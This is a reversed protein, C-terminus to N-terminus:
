QREGHVDKEATHAAQVPRGVLVKFSGDDPDSYGMYIVNDRSIALSAYRLQPGSIGMPQVHWKAGDWWAHKLSGDTEYAIHPWGNADLALSTRIRVWSITGSPNSNPDVVDIRWHDGDPWAYRLTTEDQYSFNPRGQKDLVMSNGMGPITGGGRGMRGNEITTVVWPGNLGGTAMRFAGERFASYSVYTRGQSDVRVCNWKGTERDYDLTRALWVGDKLVAHRVHLYLENAADRYQYWTVHPADDPGIAIGCSFEREGSRPAIEQSHWKSGDFSAYKLTQLPFYCLHPREHSDLALNVFGDDKDVILSFWKGTAASRFGYKVAGNDPSVYGAHVNGESDVALANFTGSADVTETTWTWGQSQAAVSSFCVLAILPFLYRRVFRACWAKYM